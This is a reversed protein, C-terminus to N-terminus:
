QCQQRCHKARKGPWNARVCLRRLPQQHTCDYVVAHRGLRGLSFNGNMFNTVNKIIGTLSCSQAGKNAYSQAIAIKIQAQFPSCLFALGSGQIFQGASLDAVNTFFQQYNTVFSPQGNFGSNIWNVVSITIQQLAVKGIVNTLCGVFTIPEKAANKATNAAQVAYSAGLLQGLGALQAHTVADNIVGTGAVFAGPTLAPPTLGLQTGTLGTAAATAGAAATGAATTGLTVVGAQVACTLSGAIATAALAAILSTGGSSAPTSTIIPASGGADASLGNIDAPTFNTGGLWVVGSPSVSSGAIPVTGANGLTVTGAGLTAGTGSAGTGATNNGSGNNGLNISGNASNQGNGAQGLTTEGNGSTGLNTGIARRLTAQPAM